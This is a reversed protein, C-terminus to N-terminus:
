EAPRRAARHRRPMGRQGHERSARAALQLHASQPQKRRLRHFAAAAVRRALSWLAREQRAATLRLPTLAELRPAVARLAAAAAGVSRPLLGGLSRLLAVAETHGQGAALSLANSSPSSLVLPDAGFGATLDEDNVFM